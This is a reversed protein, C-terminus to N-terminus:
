FRIKSLFDKKFNEGISLSKEQENLQIVLDTHTYAKLIKLAIIDKKNVRCFEGSPLLELLQNYSINKLVLRRGGELHALKDRKDTSSNTVYMLQNYFVISKGKDTNWQFYAKERLTKGLFEQAKQVAKELREKHIPKRIYDVAEIDFADAAYEKYASTFIVPKGNLARAVELGNMGPMEIDLICLDFELSPLEEMMKLPDNFAKIVEVGQLQECIMRLYTLGPLEDDLLLCKLKTNM